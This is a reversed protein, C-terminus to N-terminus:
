RCFVASVYDDETSFRQEYIKPALLCIALRACKFKAQKKNNDDATCIIKSGFDLVAKFKYKSINLSSPLM